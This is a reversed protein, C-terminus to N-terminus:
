YDFSGHSRGPYQNSFQPASIVVRNGEKMVVLATFMFDSYWLGIEKGKDDIISFGRLPYTADMFARHNMSDLLIKMKDKTLSVKRWIGPEVDYKRDIAMLVEPFDESGYTFYEYDPKVTCKQIDAEVAPSQRFGGYNGTFLSAGKCSCFAFAMISVMVYVIERKM